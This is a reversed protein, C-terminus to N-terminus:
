ELDSRVGRPLLTPRRHPPKLLWKASYGEPYNTMGKREKRARNKQETHHLIFSLKERCGLPSVRVCRSCNTTGVPGVLSKNSFRTGPARCLRPSQGTICYSGAPYEFKTTGYLDTFHRVWSSHRLLSMLSASECCHQSYRRIILRKFLVNM